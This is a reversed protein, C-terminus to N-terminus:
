FIFVLFWLLLLNISRMFPSKRDLIKIYLKSLSVGNNNIGLLEVVTYTLTILGKKFRNVYSVVRLRFSLRNCM